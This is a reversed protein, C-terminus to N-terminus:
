QLNQGEVPILEDHVAIILTLLLRCYEKQSVTDYSTRNTQFPCTFDKAKSRNFPLDPEFFDLEFFSLSEFPGLADTTSVDLLKSFVTRSLWSM